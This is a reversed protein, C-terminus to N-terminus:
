TGIEALFSQVGFVSVQGHVTVAVLISLDCDAPESM